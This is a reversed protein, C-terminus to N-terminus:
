ATAHRAKGGFTMPRGHILVVVLNTVGADLIAQLSWLWVAGIRRAWAM